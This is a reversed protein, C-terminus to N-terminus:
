VNRKKMKFLRFFGSRIAANLWIGYANIFLGTAAPLKQM